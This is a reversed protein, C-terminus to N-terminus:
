RREPRSPEFVRQRIRDHFQQHAITVHADMAAMAAAADGAAIQDAVDLHQAAAESLSGSGSGELGLILVQQRLQNTTEVAASLFPNGSAAAIARHFADDARRFRAFDNAGAAAASEAATKAITQVDSPRAREAAFRATEREIMRRYEFLRDVHNIDTPVFGPQLDGGLARRGDAVFMGAGRRVNIRGLASLVKVAERVVNKSINLQDALELETPLRDGLALGAANIFELIREAAVEYGPRYGGPEPEIEAM